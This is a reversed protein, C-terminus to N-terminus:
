PQRLDDLISKAWARIDQVYIAASDKRVDMVTMSWRTRGPPSEPPAMRRIKGGEAANKRALKLMEAPTLGDEIASRLTSRMWALAEDSFYDPHQINYCTVTIHHVAGFYSPDQFELALIEHYKDLCSKGDRPVAGCRPCHM